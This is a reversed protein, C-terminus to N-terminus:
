RPNGGVPRSYDNNRSTLAAYATGRDERDLTFAALRGLRLDRPNHHPTQAFGTAWCVAALAVLTCAARALTWPRTPPLITYTIWRGIPGASNSTSGSTIADSVRRLIRDGPIEVGRLNEADFCLLEELQPHDNSNRQTHRTTPNFFRM